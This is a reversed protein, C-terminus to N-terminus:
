FLIFSCQDPFILWLLSSVDKDRLCCLCIFFGVVDTQENSCICFRVFRVTTRKQISDDRVLIYCYKFLGLPRKYDRFRFDGVYFNSSRYFEEGDNLLILASCARSVRRGLQPRVDAQGLVGPDILVAMWFIRTTRGIDTLLNITSVQDKLNFPAGSSISCRM